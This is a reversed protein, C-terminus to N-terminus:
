HINLTERMKIDINISWNGDDKKMGFDFYIAGFCFSLVLYFYYFM